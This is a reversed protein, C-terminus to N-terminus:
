STQKSTEFRKKAKLCPFINRSISAAKKRSSFLHAPVFNCETM